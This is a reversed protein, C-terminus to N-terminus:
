KNKDNGYKDRKNLDDLLCDTIYGTLTKNDAGAAEVVRNKFQETVLIMITKTKNQKTM